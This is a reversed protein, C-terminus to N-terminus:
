RVVGSLTGPSERRGSESGVSQPSAHPASRYDRERSAGHIVRADELDVSLENHFLEYNETFHERTAAVTRGDPQVYWTM